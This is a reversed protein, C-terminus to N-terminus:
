HFYSGSVTIHDDLPVRTPQENKSDETPEILKKIHETTDLRFCHILEYCVLNYLMANEAYILIM